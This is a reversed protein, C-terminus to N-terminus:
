RIYFNKVSEAYALGAETIQLGSDHHWNLFGRGILDSYVERPVPKLDCYTFRSVVRKEAFYALAAYYPMIKSMSKDMDRQSETMIERAASSWKHGLKSLKEFLANAESEIIAKEIDFPVEEYLRTLWLLYLSGLRDHENVMRLAEESSHICCVIAKFDPENEPNNVDTTAVISYVYDEYEGLEKVPDPKIPFEAAILEKVSCGTLTTLFDQFDKKM